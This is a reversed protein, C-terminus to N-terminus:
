QTPAALAPVTFSAGSYGEYSTLETTLVPIIDKLVTATLKIYAM